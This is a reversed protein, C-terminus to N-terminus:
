KWVMGNQVWKPLVKLNRTIFKNFRSDLLITAGFDDESRNVRGIQQGFIVLAEYNYWPFDNKVKYNVFDGSTNLYPVRIIIQFRARDGKFDVGQQCVPSIFIAPTEDLYFANLEQQFNQSTHAIYKRTKDVKSLAEAIKLGADYSPSHILGKVDNFISCVKSIKKIMEDFNDNWNAYSTDVQYESKLYIPRNEKPFNSPVRIFHADETRIGLNRCFVNKDYITGSMLLVYEGQSFLLNHAANGLSDPIFEFTTGIEKTGVREIESAMCFKDGYYDKQIRFSEVKTIWEDLPSAWEPDQEKKYKEGTTLTPAHDMFFDAWADVSNREAPFEEENLPKHIKFKKTIFDRVIAQIEHAEDIVLLDRKEFKTTFATQFIFSHLNHVVCHHKQAVEIAVTYPCPGMMQTCAQYIDKNDRCPGDGCSLAGHAPQAVSGEKVLKIVKNYTSTPSYHTCPYANRGKMLVIDGGFDDYYQNQLSKRPTIVHANGFASAITMAIPSKGSGVPAELIILRKGSRFVKDIERLVAEQTPRAKELPFFSMIDETYM